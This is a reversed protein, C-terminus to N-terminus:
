RPILVTGLYYLGIMRRVKVILIMLDIAKAINHTKM